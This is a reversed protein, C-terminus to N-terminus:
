PKYRNSKKINEMAPLYQLNWPVHLGSVNRGKLPVIHDVHFGIPRNIYFEKIIQRDKTSLWKPMRNRKLLQYARAYDTVKGPNAKAWQKNYARIKNRNREKYALKSARAKEPNADAWIKSPKWKAKNRQYYAKHWAKKAESTM